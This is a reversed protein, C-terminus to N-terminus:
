SHHRERVIQFVSTAPDVDRMAGCTVLSFIVQAYVQRAFILNDAHHPQHFEVPVTPVGLNAVPDCPLVPPPSIHSLSDRQHQSICKSVKPQDPYICYDQVRINGRNLDKLPNTEGPFPGPPLRIFESTSPMIHEAIADQLFFESKPSGNKGANYLGAVPFSM